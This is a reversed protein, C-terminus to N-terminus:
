YQATRVSRTAPVLLRYPLEGPCLVFTIASELVDASSENGKTLVQPEIPTAYSARLCIAGYALCTGSMAYCTRLSIAPSVRLSSRSFQLHHYQKRGPLVMRETLVLRQYCSHLLRPQTLVPCQM